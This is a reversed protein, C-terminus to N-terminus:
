EEIINLVTPPPTAEQVPIPLPVGYSPTELIIWWVIEYCLVDCMDDKKKEKQIFHFTEMDKREILTSLAKKICWKKLDNKVLGKECGLLRSKLISNIEIILPCFGLNRVRCMLYMKLSQSFMLLDFNTRMQNEIVIYHCWIFKDIYPDLVNIINSYLTRELDEKNFNQTFDFKSQLVTTITGTNFDKTAIRIACNKTGPDIFAATIYNSKPHRFSSPKLCVDSHANIHRVSM